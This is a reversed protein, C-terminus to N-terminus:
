GRRLKISDPNGFEEALIANRLAQVASAPDDNGIAANSVAVRTAGSLRVLSVTDISIGGIAFWPLNSELAAAKVFEVGPFGEFHKTTSPFVPGVGLYDAGAECATKIQHIDHTSVGLLQATPMNGRAVAVSTDEQGVHVGHVGAAYALDTRDNLICLADAAECAATLWQCREILEDDSLHKERLQIVDAGGALAAEATEKWPLTCLEETLLVYVHARQLREKRATRLESAGRHEADNGQTLYMLNQEISYSQYRLQKITAAFDVNITKGYEELSRLAEQVRRANAVVVDNVSERSREQETTMSTGVDNEVDRQGALSVINARLLREASVLSHRMAKLQGTANTDRAIFRAFDELVRLGERARNLNADLLAFVRGPWDSKALQAAVVDRTPEDTHNAEVVDDLIDDALVLDVKLSDPANEDHRSLEANVGDLTVGLQALQARAPGDVEVMAQVLHESGVDSVDEARRAINRARDYLSTLWLQDHASPQPVDRPQGHVDVIDSLEAMGQLSECTMAPIEGFCGEGIDAVTIGLNQLCRGGLSEELLVALVLHGVDSESNGVAISDFRRQIREYSATAAVHRFLRDM